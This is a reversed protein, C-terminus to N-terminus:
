DDPLEIYPIPNGDTDRPQPEPTAAAIKVALPDPERGDKTDM